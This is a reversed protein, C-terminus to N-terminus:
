IIMSDFSLETLMFNLILKFCHNVIRESKSIISSLKVLRGNRLLSGLIKMAM